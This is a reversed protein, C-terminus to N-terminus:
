RLAVIVTEPGGGGVERNSATMEKEQKSEPVSLGQGRASSWIEALFYSNGVKHFVLKSEGPKSPGAYAYLGMVHDKGDKTEILTARSGIDRVEYEGAALQRGDVSFAFPVTAKLTIQSQAHITPVAITFAVILTMLAGFMNRKM